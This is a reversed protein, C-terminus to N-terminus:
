TSPETYGLIELVKDPLPLHPTVAEVAEIGNETDAEVADVGFLQDELAKLTAKAEDGSFKTSDIVLLSTPKFNGSSIVVPTTKYDWSFTNAEPSDNITSYQKESPSAMAGYVLHLKYGYDTGSTDNGVTTRYCLGFTKRSQQGIQIGPIGSPSISGDCEAWDDPYTYAEIGGELEEVSSLNLYKINDAYIATPEGGTPKETVSSLGNWAVGTPYSGDAAQKYLVGHDIGTEYLRQGSQDWTLKSM